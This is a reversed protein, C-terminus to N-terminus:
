DSAADLLSELANQGAFLHFGFASRTIATYVLNRGLLRSEEGPLDLAVTHWESGQSKHITLAFAPQHSPLRTLPIPAPLGPFVAIQAPTGPGSGLAVGLDGNSLGLAPSNTGVIIPCGHPLGASGPSSGRLIRVGQRNARDVQANTGCLLQFASLEGGLGPLFDPFNGATWGSVMSGWNQWHGGCFREFDARSDYLRVHPANAAALMRFQEATGTGGPKVIGALQLIWPSEKARYSSKLPIMLGPLPELAPVQASRRSLSVAEDAIKTVALGDAFIRAADDGTRAHWRALTDEPLSAAAGRAVLEALVGGTEVSELQDSDGLLILSADSPLALVLHSMLELDVMSAEDVIVMRADLPREGDRLFPGGQEPPKPTWELAKHLTRPQLSKLFEKEAPELPLRDASKRLSEALRCAAKGTPAALLVADPHLTPDLRKRLALLAAACTTKGTGPGGTLVGARADCFAAVALRQQANDFHDEICRPVIGDLGRRVARDDFIPRAEALRREFDERVRDWCSQTRPLLVLDGAIAFFEDPPNDPLGCETATIQGVGRSAAELLRALPGAWVERGGGDFRGSLALRALPLFNEFAEPPCDTKM